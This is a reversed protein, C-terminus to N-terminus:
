LEEFVLTGSFTLASAPATELGVILREGPRLTPRMEPTPLYSWGSLVNYADDVLTVPSGGSSRTTNNVESVAGSAADGSVLPSPTPATGGTGSTAAATARRVTVRLQASTTSNAQGITVSHLRVANASPATIEWLDQVVSVSVASIPVSYLRGM